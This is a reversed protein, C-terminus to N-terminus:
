QSGEKGYRTMALTDIVKLQILPTVISLSDDHVGNHTQNAPTTFQTNSTTRIPNPM